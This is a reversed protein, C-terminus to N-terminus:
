KGAPVPRPRSEVDAAQKLAPDVFEVKAKSRLEGAVQQAKRHVLAAAIREKVADFDPAKRDRRDELKILHWGFQSQVPLSVDGKKLKFAAEEFQPVMQGRGFYGLDGGEERSGPDKSHKKALDAFDSGHGIMEFLEKAKMEDEVLIHRARVEEEPKIASVQSDYFKRTDADSLSGKVGKDFFADRLARRKWYALREDFAPGSALKEAEAADAFLQNEILYEVLVRRRQEAPLNGLDSGIEAEALRMDSETIAKGNVTAVIKEQATVPGTALALAVVLAACAARVAHRYFPVTNGKEHL